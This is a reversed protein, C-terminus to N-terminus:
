QVVIKQQYNKTPTQVQLIYIGASLQTTSLMSAGEINAFQGQGAIRGGLDFIAYHTTEGNNGLQINLNQGSQVPNPYVLLDDDVLSSFKNETHLDIDVKEKKFFYGGTSSGDFGTMIIKWIAGNKDQVVYLTSDSIDWSFTTFNIKKWDFGITNKASVLALDVSLEFSEPDKVPTIKAAKVGKNLLIGTANYGGVGTLIAAYQTFLLDWDETQPEREIVSANSFNTYVFNVGPYNRKDINLNQENSGDLNAYVIEYIGSALRKIWVKKFAKDISQLIYIRNGTVHHTILNYKGWGLDFSNNSDKTQNFAGLAWSTDSNFLKTWSRMGSTDINNWAATDGNPYNWLSAGQAHNVIISSSFGQIEFGLDWDSNSASKVEGDTLSYWVQNQYGAAIFVSDESFQGFSKLSFGIIILLIIKKM